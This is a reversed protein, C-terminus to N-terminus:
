VGGNMEVYKIISVFNKRNVEVLELNGSQKKGDEM